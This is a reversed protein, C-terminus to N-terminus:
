QVLGYHDSHPCERRDRQHPHLRKKMNKLEPHQESAAAFGQRENRRFDEYVKDNMDSHDSSVVSDDDDTEEATGSEPADDQRSPDSSAATRAKAAGAATEYGIQNGDDDYLPIGGLCAPGARM